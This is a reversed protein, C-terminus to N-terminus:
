GQFEPPRQGLTVPLDIQEGARDVTFTITDGVRYLRVKLILDDQSTIPEGEIAVVIDDVQMGALGAASPFNEVDEISGIIAGAPIVAGDPATDFFTRMEVGMFPHEVDGTEIIEATIRDVLEIPIAYGIGEPGATSVGIASTIGILKGESDVLAGGSSGSNIAADTQIMGFLFSNDAFGVRRDFASIIGSTISSGGAQGLPNGIAVAPDGVALTESAGYEIPVLDDASIQLVALDTYEDSGVLTAEYQRGDEFTVTYADGGEVVHHNTIIYGDASQVVGSGSGTPVEGVNGDTDTSERLVNVTVISPLVKAAIATENVDSGLGNIIQTNPQQNTEIVTAPPSSVTVPAEDFTGTLALIGVTLLSGLVAAVLAGILYLAGANRHEYSEHVSSSATATAPPTVAAFTGTDTEPTSSPPQADDYVFEVEDIPKVAPTSGIPESDQLTPDIPAGELPTGTADITSSEVTGASAPSSGEPSPHTTDEMNHQVSRTEEANGQPIFSDHSDDPGAPPTDNDM